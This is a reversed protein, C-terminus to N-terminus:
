SGEEGNERLTCKSLSAQFTCHSHLLVAAYVCIQLSIVGELAGAFAEMEMVDPLGCWSMNTYILLGPICPTLIYIIGSSHVACRLFIYSIESSM